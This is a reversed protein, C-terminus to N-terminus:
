KLFMRKRVRVKDEPPSLCLFNVTIVIVRLESALVDVQRSRRFNVSFFREFVVFIWAHSFIRWFVIRCLPRAYLSCGLSTPSPLFARSRSATHSMTSRFSPFCLLCSFLRVGVGASILANSKSLASLSSSMFVNPFHFQPHFINARERAARSRSDLRFSFIAWL